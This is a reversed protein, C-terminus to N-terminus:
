LTVDIRVTRFVTGGAKAIASTNICEPNLWLNGFKLVEPGFEKSTSAQM